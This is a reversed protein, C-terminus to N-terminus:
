NHQFRTVDYEYLWDLRARVANPAVKGGLWMPAYTKVQGWLSRQHFTQANDRSAAQARHARKLRHRQYRALAVRVDDGDQMVTVTNPTVSALAAALSWGDEVAM